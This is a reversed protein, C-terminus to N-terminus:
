SIIFQPAAIQKISSTFIIAAVILEATFLRAFATVFANFFTSLPSEGVKLIRYIFFVAM